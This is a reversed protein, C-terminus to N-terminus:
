WDGSYELGMSLDRLGWGELGVRGFSVVEDAPMDEGDKFDWMEFSNEGEGEWGVVGFSWELGEVAMRVWFSM